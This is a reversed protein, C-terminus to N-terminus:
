RGNNRSICSIEGARLRTDRRKSSRKRSPQPNQLRTNVNKLSDIIAKTQKIEELSTDIEEDTPWFLKTLVVAMGAVVVILLINKWLSKM